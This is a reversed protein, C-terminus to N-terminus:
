GVRVSVCTHQMSACAWVCQGVFKKGGGGVLFDQIFGQYHACYEQEHVTAHWAM